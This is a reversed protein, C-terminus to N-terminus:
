AGPAPPASSDGALEAHLWARAFNWDRDVTKPDKGIIAAIEERHLGAFYRLEVVQAARPYLKAFRTLATDLDILEPIRDPTILLVEDLDIRQGAARKCAGVSRAHDVLVRRMTTGAVAFFHARSAWPITAGALRLFAEHVLATPQLTHDGREGKMAIRAMRRLEDYVTRFLQERADPDGQDALRLLATVDRKEQPKLGKKELKPAVAPGM